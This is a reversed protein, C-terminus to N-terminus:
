GGGGLKMNGLGRLGQVPFKGVYEAMEQLM